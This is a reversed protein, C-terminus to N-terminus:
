CRPAMRSAARRVITAQNGTAESGPLNMFLGPEIHLAQGVTSFPPLDADSTRQLYYVSYLELDAQTHFGRKADGRPDRRCKGSM